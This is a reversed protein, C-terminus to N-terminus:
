LYIANINAAHTATNSAINKPDTKRAFAVFEDVIDSSLLMTQKQAVHLLLEQAHGGFFPASVLVSTDVVFRTASSGSAPHAASSRLNM